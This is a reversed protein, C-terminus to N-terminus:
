NKILTVFSFSTIEMRNWLRRFVLCDVVFILIFNSVSNLDGLRVLSTVTKIGALPDYWAHLWPGRAQKEPPAAATTM